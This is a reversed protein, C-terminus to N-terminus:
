PCTHYTPKLIPQPTTIGGGAPLRGLRIPQLAIKNKRQKGCSTRVRHVLVNGRIIGGITKQQDATLNLKETLEALEYGQRMRRPGKPPPTPATQTGDGPTAPPNGPAVPPPAPPSAPDDARGTSASLALAISLISVSVAPHAKMCFIVFVPRM